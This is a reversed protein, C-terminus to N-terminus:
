VGSSTSRAWKSGSRRRSSTSCRRLSGRRPCRRGQGIRGSRRVGPAGDVEVLDQGVAEKLEDVQQRALEAAFVAHQADEAGRVQEEGRFLNQDSPSLSAMGNRKVATMRSSAAADLAMEEKRYKTYQHDVAMNDAESEAKKRVATLGAMSSM